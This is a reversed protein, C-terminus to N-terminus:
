LHLFPNTAREYAIDTKSGHGPYVIIDGDLVMLKNNISDLIQELDGGLHDTRGISGAFLTDGTFIVKDKENLYCVGGRTHGPTAIVKLTTNGFTVTDGEDVSIVKGSFEKAPIGLMTSYRPARQIQEEDRENCYVDINWFRCTDELGLIHDFHGHTLLVKVPKLNKQEVISKLRQFENDSSFGPDIIVCEGTEDSLLYCCERLANFYLAKIEM